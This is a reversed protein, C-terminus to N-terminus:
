VFGALGSDDFVRADREFSPAAGPPSAGASAAAAGGLAIIGDAIRKLDSVADEFGKRVHDPAGDEWLYYRAIAAAIQRILPPVPDLPVAYRAGAFGDIKADADALARGVITDDIAAAAAKDTLRILETEGFREVLDQKVAYTM